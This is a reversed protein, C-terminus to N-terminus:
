AFVASKDAQLFNGQILLPCAKLAETEEEFPKLCQFWMGCTPCTRNTYSDFTLFGLLEGGCRDCNGIDHIANDRLIAFLELKNSKIAGILKPTVLAAPRLKLKDGKIAISLGLEEITEFIWNLSM